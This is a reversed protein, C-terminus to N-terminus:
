AAFNPINEYKSITIKPPAAVALLNMGTTLGLQLMTEGERMYKGDESFISLPVGKLVITRSVSPHAGLASPLNSNPPLQLVDAWM